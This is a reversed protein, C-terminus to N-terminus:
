LLLFPYGAFVQGKEEQHKHPTRQDDDLHSKHHKALPLVPILYVTAHGGFVPHNGRAPTIDETIFSQKQGATDLLVPHEQIETCGLAFCLTLFAVLQTLICQIGSM